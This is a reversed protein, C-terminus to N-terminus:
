QSHTAFYEQLASKIKDKLKLDPCNEETRQLIIRAQIPWDAGNDQSRLYAILARISEANGIRGLGEIALSYIMPNAAIAQELYRVAIPDKVYSLARAADVAAEYNARNQIIQEVKNSGILELREKDRPVITITFSSEGESIVTGSEGVQIPSELKADIRYTGPKSFNFWENLVLNQAYTQQPFLRHKGNWSLGEGIMRPVNTLKTGDPKTLTFKFGDRSNHGLDFNIAQSISNTVSFKIIIPENLSFDYSAPSYSVALNEKSQQKECPKNIRIHTLKSSGAEIRAISGALHKTQLQGKIPSINGMLMFIAFFVLTSTISSVQMM